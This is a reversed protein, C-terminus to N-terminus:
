TCKHPKTSLWFYNEVEEIKKFFLLLILGSVCYQLFWKYMYYSQNVVEATLLDPHKCQSYIQIWAADFVSSKLNSSSSFLTIITFIALKQTKKEQNIGFLVTEELSIWFSILLLHANCFNGRVESYM